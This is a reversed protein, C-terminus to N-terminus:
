SLLHNSYLKRDVSVVYANAFYRKPWHICDLDDFRRSFSLKYANSSPNVFTRHPLFPSFMLVDGAKIDLVVSGAFTQDNLVYGNDTQEGLLLGKSHQKPAVEISHTMSNCDNVSIWVVVSNASSGMSPFDQHWPLGFCNGTLDNSTYHSVVPGFYVPSNLGLAFVLEVLEPSSFLQALEISEAFRKLLNRNTKLDSYFRSQFKAEFVFKLENVFEKLAFSHAVVYGDSQFKSQLNSM